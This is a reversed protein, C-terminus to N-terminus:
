RILKSEGDDRCFEEYITDRSAAFYKLGAIIAEEKTDFPPLLASSYVFKWKPNKNRKGNSFIIIRTYCAIIYGNFEGTKDDYSPRIQYKGEGKSFAKAKLVKIRANFISYVMILMLTLTIILITAFDINMGM